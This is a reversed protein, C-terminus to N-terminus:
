TIAGLSQLILAVTYFHRFECVRFSSCLQHITRKKPAWVLVFILSLYPYFPWVLSLCDPHLTLSLLLPFLNFKSKLLLLSKSGGGQSKGNQGKVKPQWQEKRGRYVGQSIHGSPHVVLIVFTNWINHIEMYWSCLIPELEFNNQM